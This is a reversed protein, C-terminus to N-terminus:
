INIYKNGIQFSNLPLCYHGSSTCCLEICKGFAYARDNGCDLTMDTRKISSVSILLPIECPVLDM